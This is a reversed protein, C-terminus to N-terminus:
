RQTQADVVQTRYIPLDWAGGAFGRCQLQVSEYSKYFRRGNWLWEKHTWCDGLGRGKHAASISGLEYDTGSSTVWQTIQTLSPNMVAFGAAMNYAGSWCPVEVLKAHQNLSYVTFVSENELASNLLQCEDADIHSLLLKTLRKGENSDADIAQLPYRLVPALVVHPLPQPKLVSGISRNGKRIMTSPTNLRQQFEDMKLLTATAGEVSLSWKLQGFSWGIPITGQVAKLLLKSQASSLKGIQTTLSLPIKVAQMGQLHLMVHPIKKPNYIQVQASIVSNEGASRTFLVSIPAKIDEHQYGAARCTGTNDCVLEWDKYQYSLGELNAVASTSLVFFVIGLLGRVHNTTKFM